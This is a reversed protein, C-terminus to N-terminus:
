TLHTIKANGRIIGDDDLWVESYTRNYLHTIYPSVSTAKIERLYPTLEDIVYKLDEELQNYLEESNNIENKKQIIRLGDDMTSRNKELTVLAPKLDYDIHRRKEDRRDRIDLFSASLEKTGM